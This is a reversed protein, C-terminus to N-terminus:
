GFLEMHLLEMIRSTHVGSAKSHTSRTMKNELCADCNRNEDIDLKPVGQYAGKKQGQVNLTGSAIIQGKEGDGFTVHGESKYHINELNNPNGTMHRSCGSDFYWVSTDKGSETIFIMKDKITTHRSTDWDTATTVDSEGRSNFTINYSKETKM